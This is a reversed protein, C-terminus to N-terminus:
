SFIPRWLLFKRWLLGHKTTIKRAAKGIKEVTVSWTTKNFQSVARNFYLEHAYKKGHFDQCIKVLLKALRKGTHEVNKSTKTFM